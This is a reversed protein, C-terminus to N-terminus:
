ALFAASFDALPSDLVVVSTMLTLAGFFKCDFGVLISSLGPLSCSFDARTLAVFGDCFFDLMLEDFEEENTESTDIDEDMDFLILAAMTSLGALPFAQLSEDDTSEVDM